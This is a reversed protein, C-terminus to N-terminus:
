MRRNDFRVTVRAPDIHVDPENQRSIILEDREFVVKLPQRYGGPRYTEDGATIGSIITSLSVLDGEESFVLSSGEAHLMIERYTFPKVDGYPTSIVTNYVPEISRIRGNEHLEIGLRTEIEGAPTRVKVTDTPWLTISRLRGSPYFYLCQPRIRVEEGEIGFVYFPAAALEDEPGWYASLRGYLPFVRKISGDEYFTMLEAQYDGAPFSVTEPEQLYLSRLAGNKYYDVTCRYKKRLDSTDSCPKFIGYKTRVFDM